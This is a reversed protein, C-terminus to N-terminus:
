CTGADHACNSRRCVFLLSTCSMGHALTATSVLRTQRGLVCLVPCDNHMNTLSRFPVKALQAELQQNKLIMQTQKDMADNLEQEFGKQVGDRQQVMMTRQKEFQEQQLALQMHLQKLEQSSKSSDQERLQAYQHMKQKYEQEQKSLQQQQAALQTRLNHLETDMASKQHMLQDTRQEAGQLRLMLNANEGSMGQQKEFHQLQQKEFHQVSRQMIDNRKSLDEIQQRYMQNERKLAVTMRAQEESSVQDMQVPQGRSLRSLNERLADNEAEQAELKISLGSHKAKFDRLETETQAQKAEMQLVLKQLWDARAAPDEGGALQQRGADSRPNSVPQPVDLPSYSRMPGPDQYTARLHQGSSPAADAFPAAGLSTRNLAAQQGYGYM